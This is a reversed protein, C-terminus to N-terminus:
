RKVRYRRVPLIRHYRNPFRALYERADSLLAFRLERGVIDVLPEREAGKIWWIEWWERALVRPPPKCSSDGSWCLGACERGTGVDRMDERSAPPRRCTECRARTPKRPERKAPKPADGARIQERTLRCISCVNGGLPFVHTSGDTVAVGPAAAHSRRDVVVANGPSRSPVRVPM